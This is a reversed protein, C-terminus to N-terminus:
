YNNKEIESNGRFNKENEESNRGCKRRMKKEMEGLNAVSDFGGSLRSNECVGDAPASFNNLFEPFL